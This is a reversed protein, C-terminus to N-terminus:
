GVRALRELELTQLAAALGVFSAEDDNREARVVEDALFRLATLVAPRAMAFRPRTYISQLATDYRYLGNVLFPSMPYLPLDPFYSATISRAACFAVLAPRLRPELSTGEHIRLTRLDLLQAAIVPLPTTTPDSGALERLEQLELELHRLQPFHKTELSAFTKNLVHTAVGAIELSEVHPFREDRLEPGSQLDGDPTWIDDALARLTLRRLTSSFINAFVLTDSTLLPNCVVLHRIPPLTTSPASLAAALREFKLLDDGESGESLIRLEQLASCQSLSLGLLRASGAWVAADAHIHLVRLPKHWHKLLMGIHQMGLSHTELRPVREAAGHLVTRMLWQLSSPKDMAMLVPPLSDAAELACRHIALQSLHPLRPILSLVTSLSAPDASDLEVRTFLTAHQPSVSFQFFIGAKSAKLVRFRWTASLQSWEKSVRFLAGLSSKYRERQKDLEGAMNVSLHEGVHATWEEYVEDQLAVMEVIRKKLEVPLDNITRRPPVAGEAPPSAM